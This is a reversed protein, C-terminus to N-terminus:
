DQFKNLMSDFLEDKNDTWGNVYGKEEETNFNCEKVMSEFQYTNYLKDKFGYEGYEIILENILGTNNKLFKKFIQEM